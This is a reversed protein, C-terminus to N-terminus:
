IVLDRKLPLNRSSGGVSVTYTGKLLRWKQAGVDWYSLDRRTLPFSVTASAGAAILPKDFGRLQRLPTGAPASSPLSLYLQAVEAGAVKGTNAVKATVTALVDWLDAQGGPRIAGTPLEATGAGGTPSVVLDSYNFTTYSLGFGFEYRPTVNAADFHRYDILAGETFNSQPFNQFVGAPLSPSLLQAYDSENRAVTYPLKGSFVARGYLLEVLARGSAQGPLHAFIIATVNAHDVFQDVLRAGANHLVVITNNCSNAVNRVLGDTYDDRVNPRDYGETAWANGIVLCADSVPVVTPAASTFDWFLETGDDWAHQNIADFPASVLSQSTAGSGGGAFITGNPAIGLNSHPGGLFGSILDSLNASQAGFGWATLPGAAYNNTDPAKASYGFISLMKPKALPLANRINKVLVHGEVAGDMLIGKSAPDRGDVIKHPKSLDSPMGVGPEPFDKDQGM